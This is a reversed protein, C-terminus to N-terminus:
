STNHAHTTHPLQTTTSLVKQVACVKVSDTHRWFYEGCKECKARSFGLRQMTAVPYYKEPEAAFKPKAIKKIEQKHTRPRTKRM